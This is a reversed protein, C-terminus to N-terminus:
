VHYVQAPQVSHHNERLMLRDPNELRNIKMDTQLDSQTDLSLAILLSVNGLTRLCVREGVVYVFPLPETRKMILM